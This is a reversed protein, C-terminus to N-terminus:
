ARILFTDTRTYYPEPEQQGVPVTDYCGLFIITQRSMPPLIGNMVFDPSARLPPQTPTQLSNKFARCGFITDGNKFELRPIFIICTHLVQVNIHLINFAGPSCFPLQRWSRTPLLLQISRPTFTRHHQTGHFM